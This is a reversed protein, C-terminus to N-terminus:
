LVKKLISVVEKPAENYGIHGINQILFFNNKAKEATKKMDQANIIPDFEGQIIFAEKHFKELVSVKPERDRMAILSQSIAEASINKAIGIAEEIENSLRERNEPAYLDTIAERVFLGKHQMVLQAARTRNKKKEESDAWPHSHFLILKEITLAPIEALHLAVYGGMSHGVISFHLINHKILIVKIAEAISPLSLPTSLLPSDGHGPLEIKIVQINKLHPVINKWMQNDELFGHIFVVPKGEGIISYNLAIKDKM